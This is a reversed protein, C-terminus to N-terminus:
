ASSPRQDPANPRSPAAPRAGSSGGPRGDISLHAMRLGRRLAAHSEATQRQSLEASEIVDFSHFAGAFNHVEVSVGAQLLRLAYSLGEDRLPDFEATAIYAPPLGSLDPTRAPAAYYAVDRRDEGLYYNWSLLASGRNWVPTDTFALMSPTELRDDLVPMNLLQYCPSPGGRDRALLAVGAALGGGASSGIVAIREPDLGLEGSSEVMWLFAAFCDDLAAPYPNEPALRYEVSVVVAEAQIAASAAFKHESEISGLVFGGSHIYLVAPLPPELLYPTFVRARVSPGHPGAPIVKDETRLLDSGSFDDRAFSFYREHQLRAEELRAIPVTERLALAAALEADYPYKM